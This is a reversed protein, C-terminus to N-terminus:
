RQPVSVTPAQQRPASSVPMPSSPSFARQASVADIAAMLEDRRWRTSGGIRIPQPFAGDQVRRWFTARSIEHLAAASHDSPLIAPENM